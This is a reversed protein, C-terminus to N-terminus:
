IPLNKKNTQIQGGKCNGKCSWGLYIKVFSIYSTQYKLMKRFSKIKKTGVVGLGAEAGVLVVVLPLFRFHCNECIEFGVFSCWTVM